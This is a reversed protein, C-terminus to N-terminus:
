CNTTKQVSWQHASSDRPGVRRKVTRLESPFRVVPPRSSPTSSIKIARPAAFIERWPKEFFTDFYEAARLPNLPALISWPWLLGMILYGLVLAPLLRWVFEGARTVSKRYGAARTEGNPQTHVVYWHASM